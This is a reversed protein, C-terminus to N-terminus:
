SYYIFLSYPFCLSTFILYISIYSFIHLFTIHIHNLTLASGTACHYPLAMQPRLPCTRNRCPSKDSIWFQFDTAPPMSLLLLYCSVCMWWFLGVTNRDAFASAYTHQNNITILHHIHYPYLLLYHLQIPIYYPYHSQIPIIMRTYLQIPIFM